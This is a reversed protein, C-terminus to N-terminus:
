RSIHLTFFDSCFSRKVVHPELYRGYEFSENISSWFIQHFSLIILPARRGLGMQWWEFIQMECAFDIVQHSAAAEAMVLHGSRSGWGQSAPSKKFSMSHCRRCCVSVRSRSSLGAQNCYFEGSPDRLVGTWKDGSAGVAKHFYIWMLEWNNSNLLNNEFSGPM